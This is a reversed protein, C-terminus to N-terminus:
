AQLNLGRMDPWAFRPTPAGKSAASNLLPLVPLGISGREFCFCGYAMGAATRTQTRNTKALNPTCVRGGAMLHQATGIGPATQNSNMRDMAHSQPRGASHGPLAVPLAFNHHTEPCDLLCFQGGYLPDEAGEASIGHPWEASAIEAGSRAPRMRVPASGDARLGTKTRTM